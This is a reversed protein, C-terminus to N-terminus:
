GSGSFNKAGASFRCSYATFSLICHSCSCCHESSM